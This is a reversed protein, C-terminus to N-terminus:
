VVGKLGRGTVRGSRERWFEREKSSDEAVPRSSLLFYSLVMKYLLINM